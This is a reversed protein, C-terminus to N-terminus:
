GRMMETEGGEGKRPKGSNLTHRHRPGERMVMPHEYARELAQGEAELNGRWEQESLVQRGSGIVMIRGDGLAEVAFGKGPKPHDWSSDPYWVAMSYSSLEGPEYSFTYEWDESSSKGILARHFKRQSNIPVSNYHIKMEGSRGASNHLDRLEKLLAPFDSEHMTAIAKYYKEDREARRRELVVAEAERKKRAAEAERMERAAKAAVDDRLGRFFSGNDPTMYKRLPNYL